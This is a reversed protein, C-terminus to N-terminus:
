RIASKSEDRFSNLANLAAGSRVSELALAVGKKYDEVIGSVKLLAACNILVYDLIPHGIEMQGDLLEGLIKANDAPSGSKVSDLTHPRLGFDEPKIISSQIGSIQDYTWINTPGAPSIEDLREEGCVIMCRGQPSLRSFSEIFVPGLEPSHVGIIRAEIPAPNLLPGLINFITPHKLQRRILAVNALAPNWIPALLFLFPSSIAPIDTPNLLLNCGYSRLIDASGSSSTSAKNGHKIVRVKAVGAAVIAATTSVNFTNHGDGGTGVIDVCVTESNTLTQLTDEHTQSAGKEPIPWKLAVKRLIEVAKTIVDPKRDLRSEHLHVLFKSISDQSASPDLIQVFCDSMLGYSKEPDKLYREIADM